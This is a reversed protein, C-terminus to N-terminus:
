TSNKKLIKKDENLELTNACWNPDFSQKENNDNMGCNFNLPISWYDLEEFFLNEKIKSDFIPIKGNRLYNIVQCFTDGDRDLFVRGNHISLKHRGSFM